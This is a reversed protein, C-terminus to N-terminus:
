GSGQRATGILDLLEDKSHVGLKQYIHAVHAKVTGESIVLADRIHTRSYGEALMSMVEAERDSLAYASALSRYLADSTTRMEEQLRHAYADEQRDSMLRAIVSVVFSVLAFVAGAVVVQVSVDANSMDWALAAWFGVMLSLSLSAKDMICLVFEGVGIRDKLDSLQAAGLTAWALWAFGAACSVFFSYGADLYPLYLLVVGVFHMTFLGRM